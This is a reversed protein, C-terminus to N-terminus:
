MVTEKETIVSVERRWYVVDSCHHSDPPHSPLNDSSNQPTAHVVTTCLSICVCSCNKCNVIPKPKCRLLPQSYIAVIQRTIGVDKLSSARTSLSVFWCGIAKLAKVSNTPHWSSCGAQLFNLPKTSAHNYTRLSTCTIQIHDLQHWESGM